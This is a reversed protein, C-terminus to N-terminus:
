FSRNVSFAVMMNWLASNIQYDRSVGTVVRTHRVSDGNRYEVGGKILNEQIVNYVTFLDNRDDGIRRPKLLMEPEIVSNEGWNYEIAKAAFQTKQVPNLEIKNYQLIKEAVVTFKTAAETLTREVSEFTIDIHFDSFAAFSMDTVILGNGCVKRRLAMSGLISCARNHSNRLYFEPGVDGVELIRFGDKPAFRVSHEQYEPAYKHTKVQNAEVPYWGLKEFHDVIPETPIFVYESSVDPAPSTAFIAPAKERLQTKSLFVNQSNTEM